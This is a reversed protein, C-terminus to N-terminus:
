LGLDIVEQDTLHTRAQRFISSGAGDHGTCFSAARMVGDEIVVAYGLADITGTTLLNL